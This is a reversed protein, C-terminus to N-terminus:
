WNYQVGGPTRLIEVLAQAAPHTGTVTINEAPQALVPGAALALLATSTLFCNRMNVRENNTM